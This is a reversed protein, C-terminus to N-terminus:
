EVVVEERLDDGDGQIAMIEDATFIRDIDLIIMFQGGINGMGRIFDTNLKSGIRPPPEVQTSDLEMVEEVADALAGIVTVENEAVVEMVIICSDITREAEDMGFKRRLDVVPVVSGRLNIVGLMYEPTQPVRTVDACDLVERAKIVDVAFLEDSLRFSLYQENENMELVSETPM